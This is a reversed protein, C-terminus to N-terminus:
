TGPFFEEFIALHKWAADKVHDVSLFKPKWEPNWEVLSRLGDRICKVNRLQVMFLYVLQYDVNTPVLVGYVPFPTNAERSIELLIAQKGYRSLLRRQEPSQCAFVIRNENLLTATSYKLSIDESFTNPNANVGDIELDFFIMLDPHDEQLKKIQNSLINIEHLSIKTLLKAKYIYNGIDRESPYFRRRQRSPPTKDTLFM